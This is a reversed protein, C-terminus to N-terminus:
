NSTKPASIRQTKATLHSTIKPGLHEVAPIQSQLFTDFRGTMHSRPGVTSPESIGKGVVQSPTLIDHIISYVVLRLQHLIDEM